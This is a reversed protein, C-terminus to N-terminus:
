LLTHPGSPPPLGQRNEFRSVRQAQYAALDRPFAQSAVHSSRALAPRVEHYLGSCSQRTAEGSSEYIAPQTYIPMSDEWSYSSPIVDSTVPVGATSPMQIAELLAVRCDDECIKQGLPSGLAKEALHEITKYQEDPDNSNYQNRMRYRIAKIKECIDLFVECSTEHRCLMTSHTTSKSTIPEIERTVGLIDPYLDQVAKPGPTLLGLVDCLLGHSPERLYGDLVLNVCDLSCYQVAYMILSENNPFSPTEWYNTDPDQILFRLLQGLLIKSNKVLAIQIPTFGAASSMNVHANHNLLVSIINSRTTKLSSYRNKRVFLKCALHLPTERAKNLIDVEFRRSILFLVATAKRRQVAQHLMSNGQEDTSAPASNMFLTWLEDPFDQISAALIWPTSGYESAIDVEAGNKVLAKCIALHKRRLALHLPTEGRSDKINVQSGHCLLALVSPLLEKEAAAVLHLPTSGNSDQAQIDAESAKLIISSISDVDGGVCAWHLTNRGNISVHDYNAGASLLPNVAEPCFRVAYQLPSQGSSSISNVDAGLRLLLEVSEWLGNSLAVHLPTGAKEDAADVFNAMTKLQANEFAEIISINGSAAAYYFPTRGRRDGITADAQQSLLFLLTEADGIIASIHLVTLGARSTTNVLLIKEESDRQQLLYKVLKTYEEMAAIHFATFGDIDSLLLPLKWRSAMSLLLPASAIRNVIKHCVELTEEGGLKSHHSWYSLAYRLLKYKRQMEGIEMWYRSSPLEEESVGLPRFHLYTSLIELIRGHTDPLLGHAHRSLFAKLTEHVLRVVNSTKDYVILGATLRLLTKINVFGDPDLDTDSIRVSVAEVLENATLPRYARHLWSLVQFALESQRNSKIRNMYGMYQDDLEEPLMSIQENMERVSVASELQRIHLDALLFMGKAKELISEIILRRLSGAQKSESDLSAEDYLCTGSASDIRAELFRRIDSEQAPIEYEFHPISSLNINPRSMILLKVRGPDQLKKLYRILQMQHAEPLEDVGDLCLTIERDGDSVELLMKVIQEATLDKAARIAAKLTHLMTGLHVEDYLQEVVQRLLAALIARSQHLALNSHSLYVVGVGRTAALYRLHEVVSSFLITKGCGPMGYCWLTRVLSTSSLWDRYTSNYILWDSTGEQKRSYVDKHFQSMNNIPSIFDLLAAKGKIDEGIKGRSEQHRISDELRQLGESVAPMQTETVFRLATEMAAHNDQLKSLGAQMEPLPGLSHLVREIAGRIGILDASTKVSAEFFLGWGDMSLAVHLLNTFRGLEQVAKQVWEKSWLPWLFRSQTTKNDFCDKVDAIFEACKNLLATIPTSKDFHHQQARSSQLFGCLATLVSEFCEVEIRLRERDKSAHRVDSIYAMVYRTTSLTAECIGLVASVTGVVEAM